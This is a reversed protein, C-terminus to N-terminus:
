FIALAANQDRGEAAVLGERSTRFGWVPPAVYAVYMSQTVSGPPTNSGMINSSATVNSRQCKAKTTKVISPKRPDSGTM